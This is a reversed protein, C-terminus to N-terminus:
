YISFGIFIIFVVIRIFFCILISFLTLDIVNEVVILNFVKYNFISTIKYAFLIECLYFIIFLFFLFSLM